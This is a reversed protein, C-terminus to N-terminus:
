FCPPPLFPSGAPVRAWAALAADAHGVAKESLGLLYDVEGEGPRRASLQVLRTRAADYRGQGFERRARGLSARFRHAAAARYGGVAMAAVLVGSMSWTWRRRM